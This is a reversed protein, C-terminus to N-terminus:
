PPEYPVLANHSWIPTSDNEMVMGDKEMEM